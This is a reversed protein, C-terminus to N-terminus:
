ELIRRITTIAEEGTPTYLEEIIKGDATSAVSILGNLFNFETISGKTVIKGIDKGYTDFLTIENVGSKYACIGNYDTSIELSNIGKRIINGNYDMIDAPLVNSWNSKDIKNVVYFGCYEYDKIEDYGLSYLDVKLNGSKDLLYKNDGNQAIIDGNSSFSMSKYGAAIKGSYARYLACSGYKDMLIMNTGFIDSVSYKNLNINFTKLIEGKTNVIIFSKDQKQLVTLDNLFKARCPNLYVAPIIENFDSDMYGKLGNENGFEYMGCGVDAIYSFEKIVLKTNLDYLKYVGWADLIVENGNCLAVSYYSDTVENGEKDIIFESGTGAPGGAVVKMFDNNVPYVYGKEKATYVNGFGDYYEPEYKFDDTGWVWVADVFYNNNVTSNIPSGFSPYLEADPMDNKNVDEFANYLRLFTAISQEKTYTDLPSFNNDGSGYMIGLHYMAYIENRAWNNIKAGDNFIHPLFIGNVGNKNDSRYKELVDTGADFTNYLMRAAEQRTINGDPNFKNNGVGSVIGLAASKKIEDNDTDSFHIDESNASNVIDKNKIKLLTIALKCFDGRTIPETYQGKLESPVINYEIAKEISEKAWESMAHVKSSNAILESVSGHENGSIDYFHDEGVNAVIYVVGNEEKVEVQYQETPIIEKFDSNLIGCRNDTMGVRKQVILTGGLGLETSIDMYNKSLCNGNDDIVIESDDPMNNNPYQNYVYIGGIGKIPIVYFIDNDFENIIESAKANYVVTKGNDYCYITDDYSINFYIEDIVNNLEGDLLGYKYPYKNSSRVKIYGDGLSEIEYYPKESLHKGEKDCIYRGGENGEAYYYDTGEIKYFDEAYVIGGNVTIMILTLIATIIKKM